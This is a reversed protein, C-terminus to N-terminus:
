SRDKKESFVIEGNKERRKYDQEEVRDMEKDLICGAYESMSMGKSRAAYRLTCFGSLTMRACLRGKM